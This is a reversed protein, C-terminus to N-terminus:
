NINKMQVVVKSVLKVSHCNLWSVNKFIESNLTASSKYLKKRMWLIRFSVFCLLFHKTKHKIFILSTQKGRDYLVFIFFPLTSFSCECHASADFGPTHMYVTKYRLSFLTEPVPLVNCWLFCLYPLLSPFLHTKFLM